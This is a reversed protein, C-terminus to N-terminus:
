LARGRGSDSPRLEYDGFFFDRRAHRDRNRSGFHGFRRHGFGKQGCSQRSKDGNHLSKDRQDGSTGHVIRQEFHDGRKGVLDRLYEYNRQHTRHIASTEDISRDCDRTFALARSSCRGRFNWSREAFRRWM